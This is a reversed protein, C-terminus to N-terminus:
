PSSIEVLHGPGLPSCVQTEAEAYCWPCPRRSLGARPGDRGAGMKHLFASLLGTNRYYFCYYYVLTVTRETVKIKKKCADFTLWLVNGRVEHKLTGLKTTPIFLFCFIVSGFFFCLALCIAPVLYHFSFSVSADSSVLYKPPHLFAM